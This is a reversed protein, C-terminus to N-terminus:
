QGGDGRQKILRHTIAKSAAARNVRRWSARGRMISHLAEHDARCMPALDEFREEGLTDYHHHHLDDREVRWPEGCVVCTPESGHAELYEDVFRERRERWASSSMYAAYRARHAERGASRRSGRELERM